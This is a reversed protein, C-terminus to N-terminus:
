KKPKYIQRDGLQFLRQSFEGESMDDMTKQMFNIKADLEDATAVIMAEITMPEVPSGFEHHGHHSLIIHELMLRNQESINLKRCTQSVEFYGIQIHGILNGETTYKPILPSSFEVIKGVDHLLAGVIVLSKNVKTYHDGLFDAIQAVSIMHTILGRSYAHHNRVAAPYAFIEEFHRKYIDDLVSLLEKDTVKNRLETFGKKLEDASFDSTPVYLTLDEFDPDIYSAAEIKLQLKDKFKLVTGDILLINGPSFLLIDEETANWLKAEINGSSDQLIINLYTQGSTSVGKTCTSILFKEDEVTTGDRFDKIM